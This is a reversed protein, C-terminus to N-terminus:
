KILGTLNGTVLRLRLSAAAAQASADMVAVESQTSERVANLVDLWTKRGATFQRTYSEYVERASRSAITANAFRTRAAEAEEWDLSVREQLDRLATERQLRAAERKAVAAEVGSLASLGAGTQAQVVLMLRNTTYAPIGNLPASAYGHEYRVALQPKYGAKKAQIEAQAAEEEFALRRLTPSLTAAQELADDRNGPGPLAHVDLASVTRIPTGALQSLQTLASALAQRITSLDNNAQLLRAHALDQDVRPSVEQEVRRTM